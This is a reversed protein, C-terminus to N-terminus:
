TLHIGGTSGTLLYCDFLAFGYAIHFADGEEIVHWSNLVVVRVEGDEDILFGEAHTAIGKICLHFFGIHKSSAVEIREDALEGGVSAQLACIRGNKRNRMHNCITQQAQGHM